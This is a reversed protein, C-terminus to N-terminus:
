YVLNPENWVQWHRIQPYRRAAAEAFQGLAVPDPRWTGRPANSPRRPGEAWAPADYLM